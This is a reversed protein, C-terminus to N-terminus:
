DDDDEETGGDEDDDGHAPESVGVYPGISATLGRGTRPEFVTNDIASRVRALTDPGLSSNVVLGDVGAQWLVPLLSTDLARDIHVLMPRGCASRIRRCEIVFSMTAPDLNRADVVVADVPVEGIVRLHHVDMGGDVRM